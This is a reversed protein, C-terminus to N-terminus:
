PTVGQGNAIEECAKAARSYVSTCACCLCDSGNLSALKAVFLTVIPHENLSQTRTYDVSNRIADLAEVFSRAVGSLNCADQVALATKAAQQLKKVSSSAILHSMSV